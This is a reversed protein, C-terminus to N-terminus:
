LSLNVTITVYPAYAPLMTPLVAQLYQQFAIDLAFPTDTIDIIIEGSVDGFNDEFLFLYPIGDPPDNAIELDYAAKDNDTQTGSVEDSLMLYGYDFDSPYIFNPLSILGSHDITTNGMSVINCFLVTGEETGKMSYINYANLVLDELVKRYMSVYTPMQGLDTLYKLLFEKKSLTAPVFSKAFEEVYGRKHILAQDLVDVIQSASPNRLVESPIYDKFTM